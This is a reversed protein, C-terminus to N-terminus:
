LSGILIFFELNRGAHTCVFKQFGAILQQKKHSVTVKLKPTESIINGIIYIPNNKEKECHLLEINFYDISLNIKLYRM